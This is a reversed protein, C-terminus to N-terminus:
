VALPIGDKTEEPGRDMHEAAGAVGDFALATSRSESGTNDNNNNGGCSLREWFCILIIM